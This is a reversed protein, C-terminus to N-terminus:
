RSLETIFYAPMIKKLINILKYKILEFCCTLNNNISKLLKYWVDFQKCIISFKM